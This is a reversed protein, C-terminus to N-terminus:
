RLAIQNFPPVLDITTFEILDGDIPQIARIRAGFLYEWREPLAKQPLEGGSKPDRFMSRTIAGSVGFLGSTALPSIYRITQGNVVRTLVCVPIANALTGASQKEISSEIRKEPNFETQRFRALEDSTQFREQGRLSPSLLPGSLTLNIPFETKEELEKTPILARLSDEETVNNNPKVETFFLTGIFDGHAVASSSIRPSALFVRPFVTAVNGRIWIITDPTFEHALINEEVGPTPDTSKNAAIQRQQKRLHEFAASYVGYEAIASAITTAGAGISKEVASLPYLRLIVKQSGPNLPVTKHCKLLNLLEEGGFLPSVCCFCVLLIAAFHRM